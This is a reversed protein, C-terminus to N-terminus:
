FVHFYLLQLEVIFDSASKSCDVSSSYKMTQVAPLAASKITTVQLFM